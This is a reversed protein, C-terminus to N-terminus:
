IKQAIQDMDVQSMWMERQRRPSDPNEHNLQYVSMAARNFYNDHTEKFAKVADQYEQAREENKSHEQDYPINFYWTPSRPVKAQSLKEMEEIKADIDPTRVSSTLM